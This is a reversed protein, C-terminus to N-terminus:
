IDVKLEQTHQATVPSPPPSHTPANSKQRSDAGPSRTHALPCTLAAVGDSVHTSNFDALDKSLLSALMRISHTPLPTGKNMSDGWDARSHVQIRERPVQLPRPHLLALLPLLRERLEPRSCSYNHHLSSSEQRLFICM